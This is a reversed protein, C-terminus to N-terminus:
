RGVKKGNGSIRLLKCEDTACDIYGGTKNRLNAATYAYVRGSSKLTYCAIPKSSSISPLSVTAFLTISGAMCLVVSLFMAVIKKKTKM